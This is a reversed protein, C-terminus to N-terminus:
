NESHRPDGIPENRCTKSSEICPDTSKLDANAQHDLLLQATGTYGRIRAMELPTLNRSTARCNINARHTLLMAVITENGRYAAFHLATQGVGGGTAKCDADAGRELLLKVIAEHGGEAAFILPTSGEWFPETAKSNIDAGRDLLLEVVVKRGYKAAFALPTQGEYAGGAKSDICVGHDLLMKVIAECGSEAALSLPTRDNHLKGPAKSDADAGRNLLLKVIAGHERQAALSLMTQHGSGINTIVSDVVAGSDLLLKVFGTHGSDVAFSLPTWTNRIGGTASCNVNAKYDLLLKVMSENQNQVAFSLATRGEEHGIAKSNVDAGHDLLEKVVSEDDNRAAVILPPQSGYGGIINSATHSEPKRNAIDGEPVVEAKRTPNSLLSSVWRKWTRGRSAPKVQSLPSDGDCRLQDDVNIKKEEIKQGQDMAPINASQSDSSRSKTLTAFKSFLALKKALNQHGFFAYATRDVMRDCSLLAAATVVGNGIDQSLWPIPTDLVDATASESRPRVGVTNGILENVKTPLQLLCAVQLPTINALGVGGNAQHCSLLERAVDYALEKINSEDEINSESRSGGLYKCTVGRLLAIQLPLIMHAAEDGEIGGHFGVNVDAGAELLLKVTDLDLFFTARQLLTIGTENPLNICAQSRGQILVVHLDDRSFRSNNNIVINMLLTHLLEIYTDDTPMHQLIATCKKVDLTPRKGVFAIQFPTLGGLDRADLAANFELLLEWMESSIDFDACLHLATRCLQSTPRNIDVGRELLIRAAVVADQSVAIHLMNFEQSVPANLEVVSYADTLMELTPRWAANHGSRRFASMMVPAKDSDPSHSLWTRWLAEILHFDAENRMTELLLCLNRELGWREGAKTFLKHDHYIQVTRHMAMSLDKGHTIWHKFPQKTSQVPVIKFDVGGHAEFYNLLDEAIEWFYLALALQLAQAKYTHDTYQILARVLIRNRLGVAWLLPPGFLTIDLDDWLVTESAINPNAGHSVLADVAAHANHQPFFIALHLPTIDEDSLGAANGGHELLLKLTSLHGGVCAFHIASYGDISLKSIGTVESGHDSITNTIFTDDGYLAAVHLPHDNTREFFNLGFSWPGGLGEQGFSSKISELRRSNYKQLRTTLYLDAPIQSLEDELQTDPAVNFGQEPDISFSECVRRYWLGAKRDGELAATALWSLCENRNYDTGIGFIYCESVAIAAAARM